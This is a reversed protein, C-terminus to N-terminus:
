HASTKYCIIITKLTLHLYKGYFSRRQQFLKGELLIKIHQSKQSTRYETTSERWSQRQSRLRSLKSARQEQSLQKATSKISNSERGQLGNM